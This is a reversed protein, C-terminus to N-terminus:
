LGIPQDILCVQLAGQSMIYFCISKKILKDLTLFLTHFWLYQVDNPQDVCEGWIWLYCWIRGCGAHCGAWRHLCCWVNLAHSRPLATSHPWIPFDNQGPHEDLYATVDYVKGYVSLWCDKVHRHKALEERNITKMKLFFVLRSTCCTCCDASQQLSCVTAVLAVTQLSNCVACWTCRCMIHTIDAVTHILKFMSPADIVELDCVWM